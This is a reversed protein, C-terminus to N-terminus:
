IMLGLYWNAIQTGYLSALFMGLCLFPGFPIMAKGEKKFLTLLIIGWFGGTLIGIFTGVVTAKVGLFFGAVAMLKVDGGGIGQTLMAIIYLPISVILGGLAANPFSDFNLALRLVGLILITVLVGDYIDMTDFDIMAIVLLSSTFAMLLVSDLTIGYVSFIWVYLLGNFFEILPYRMSIKTHCHRCKGGLILYSLIPILDYSKIKENCNMCHSPGFVISEHKPLRYIVVNLFSGIIIGFIFLLIAYIVPM